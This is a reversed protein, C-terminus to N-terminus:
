QTTKASEDSASNVRWQQLLMRKTRWGDPASFPITTGNKGERQEICYKAIDNVVDEGVADLFAEDVAGLTEDRGWPLGDANKVATVCAAFIIRNAVTGPDDLLHSLRSDLPKCQFMTAREGTAEVVGDPSIGIKRLDRTQVYQTLDSFKISPHHLAPDCLPVVWVKESTKRASIM